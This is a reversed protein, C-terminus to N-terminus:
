QPDSLHPWRGLAVSSPFAPAPLSVQTKRGEREIAWAGGDLVEREQSAKCKTGLIILAPGGRGM